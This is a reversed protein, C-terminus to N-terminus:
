VDGECSLSVILHYICTGDDDVVLIRGSIRCSFLLLPHLSPFSRAPPNGLLRPLDREIVQSAGSVSCRCLSFGGRVGTVGSDKAM